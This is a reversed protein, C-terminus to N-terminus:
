WPAQNSPSFARSLFFINDVDKIIIIVKNLDWITTASCSHEALQPSHLDILPFGSYGSFFRESRLQSGVFEIQTEAM